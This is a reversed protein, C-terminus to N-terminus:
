TGLPVCFLLERESWPMYVKEGEGDRGAYTYEVGLIFFSAGVGTSEAEAQDWNGGVLKRAFQTLAFEDAPVEFVGVFDGSIQNYVKMKSMVTIKSM